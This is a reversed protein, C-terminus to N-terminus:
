YTKSTRNVSARALVREIIGLRVTYTSLSVAHPAISLTLSYFVSPHMFVLVGPSMSSRRIAAAQM